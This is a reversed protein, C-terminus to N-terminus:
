GVRRCTRACFLVMLKLLPNDTSAQVRPPVIRSPRKRIGLGRTPREFRGLPVVKQLQKQNIWVNLFQVYSNKAVMQFHTLCKDFVGARVESFTLLLTANVSQLLTHLM